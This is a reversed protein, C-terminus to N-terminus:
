DVTMLQRPAIVQNLKNKKNETNPMTMGLLEMFYEM